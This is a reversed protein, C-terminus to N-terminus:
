RNRERSKGCKLCLRIIRIPSTTRNFGFVYSRSTKQSLEYAQKEISLKGIGYGTVGTLLFRGDEDTQMVMPTTETRNEAMHSIIFDFSVKAGIVPKGEQDIVKGYYTVPVNEIKHIQANGSDAFLCVILVPLFMKM